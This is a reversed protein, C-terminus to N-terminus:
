PSGDGFIEVQDLHLFEPGPITLRVYRGMLPADFSVRYPEGNLGGFAEDANRTSVVHFDRGDQSLKIQINSAREPSSDTRNFVLIEKIASSRGLDVQWWPNAEHETCFQYRGTLRGNTATLKSADYGAEVYTSSQSTNRGLALNQDNSRSASDVVRLISEAAATADVLELRSSLGVVGHYHDDSPGLERIADAEFYFYQAKARNAWDCLLFSSDLFPDWGLSILEATPSFASTHLSSGNFAVIPRGLRWLAVQEEITHTEPYVIAFGEAALRQEVEHENMIKRVGATLRSKSFYIPGNGPVDFDVNKVLRDGAAKYSAGFVAHVFNREEFSPCPLLLRRFRTPRDPSWLRAVDVGFAELLRKFHGLEVRLTAGANIVIKYQSPLDRIQWLRSLTSLLFHGFHNHIEGLFIYTDDDAVTEVADYEFPMSCSPFVDSPVPGRSYFSQQVIKRGLDFVAPVCNPTGSPVYVHDKLELVYPDASICTFNGVRRDSRFIKAM